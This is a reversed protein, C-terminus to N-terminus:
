IDTRKLPEMIDIHGMLTEQKSGDVLIQVQDIRQLETLSFVVQQLILTEELSGGNLNKSSFDVYATNDSVKVELVDLKGLSTSLKKDEPSKKLEELIVEELKKEKLDVKKEVPILKELSEDGTKVYEQNVYYLKITELEEEIVTDKREEQKIPEESIPEPKKLDNNNQDQEPPTTNSCATFILLIIFVLIFM